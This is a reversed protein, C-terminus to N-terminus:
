LVNLSVWLVTLESKKASFNQALIGGPTVVMVENIKDCKDLSGSPTAVWASDHRFSPDNTPIGHM